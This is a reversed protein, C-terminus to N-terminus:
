EYHIEMFKTAEPLVTISVGDQKQAEEQFQELVRSTYSSMGYCDTHCEYISGSSGHFEFVLGDQTVRAIGSNMRWEDGKAFGGYWSGLVKHIVGHQKSEIKLVVWRDPRYTSM